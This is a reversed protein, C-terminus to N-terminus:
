LPAFRFIANIREDFLTFPKSHSDYGDYDEFGNKYYNEWADQYAAIDASSVYARFEEIAAAHRPYAKYLINVVINKETTSPRPKDHWYDGMVRLEGIEPAFAARLKARATRFAETDALERAHAAQTKALHLSLRYTTVVGILAGTITLGGGIVAITYADLEM